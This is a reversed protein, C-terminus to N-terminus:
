RNLLHTKLGDILDIIQRQHVEGLIEVVQITINFFETLSFKRNPMLSALSEAGFDELLHKYLLRSIKTPLLNKFTLQGM